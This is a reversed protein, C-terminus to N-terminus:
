TAPGIEPLRAEISRRISEDTLGLLKVGGPVASIVHEFATEIMDDKVSIKGHDKSYDRARKIALQVGREMADQVYRRIESDSKLGLWLTAARGVWTVLAVLAAGVAAIVVDLVPSVDVVGDAPAAMAVPVAILMAFGFTLVFFVCFPLWRHAPTM